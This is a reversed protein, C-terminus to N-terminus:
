QVNNQTILRDVLQNIYADDDETVGATIIFKNFVQEQTVPSSAQDLEHMQM